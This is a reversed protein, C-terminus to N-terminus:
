VTVLTDPHEVLWQVRIESARKIAQEQNDCDPVLVVFQGDRLICKGFLGVHRMEEEGSIFYNVESVDGALNMVVQYENQGPQWYDLEWIEVTGGDSYPTFGWTRKLEECFDEAREETSFVSRIRCASYQGSTVIFVKM